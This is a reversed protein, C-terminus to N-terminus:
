AVDRLARTSEDETARVSRRSEGNMASACLVVAGALLVVDIAVGLWFVGMAGYVASAGAITIAWSRTRYIGFMLVVGIAASLTPCPLLGLPAAVAYQAWDSTGLFHPYFWGFSLLVLGAVFAPSPAVRIREDPLRVTLAALTLSLAAFFGGNVPNGAAWAVASVSAFPPVLLWALTRQSIARTFAAVVLGGFFVHWLMALMMGNQAIAASAMVIAESTPM